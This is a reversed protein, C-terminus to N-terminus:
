HPNETYGKLYDLSHQRTVSPSPLLIGLRRDELILCSRWFYIGFRPRLVPHQTVLEWRWTHQGDVGCRSNRSDRTDKTMQLQWQDELILYLRRNSNRRDCKAKTRPLYEPPPQSTVIPTSSQIVLTNHWVDQHSIHHTVPHKIYEPSQQSTILAQHIRDSM